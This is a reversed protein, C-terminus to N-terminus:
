VFVDKCFCFLTQIAIQTGQPRTLSVYIILEGLYSCHKTSNQIRYKLITNYVAGPESLLQSKFEM